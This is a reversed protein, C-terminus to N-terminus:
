AHQRELGRRGHAVKVDNLLEDLGVGQEFGLVVSAGSGQVGSRVDGIVGGDDLEQELRARTGISAVFVVCRRQVSRGGFLTDRRQADQKAVVRVDVGGVLAAIRRQPDSGAVTRDEVNSLEEINAGIRSTSAAKIPANRDDLRANQM